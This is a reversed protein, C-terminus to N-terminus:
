SKLRSWLVALSRWEEITEPTHDLLLHKGHFRNWKRYWDRRNYSVVKGFAWEMFELVNEDKMGARHLIEFYSLDYDLIESIYM